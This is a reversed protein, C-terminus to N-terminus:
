VANSYTREAFRQSPSLQAQPTLAFQTAKRPGPSVWEGPNRRNRSV